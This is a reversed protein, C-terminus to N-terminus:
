TQAEETAPASEASPSGGAANGGAAQEPKEVRFAGIITGIGGGLAGWLIPSVEGTKLLAV